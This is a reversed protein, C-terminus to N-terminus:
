KYRNYKVFTAKWDATLKDLAEKASGQNNVVYPYLDQNLQDLLEAYEPTAWFDKVIQMSDNFARNYPTANLFKDSTLVAQSCTYGGYEAWKQQVDDRIFWELFKMADDKHKSYSVISVGQGGLAAAKVGTPGPPNAFYGTVDAYPNTAKNALAPMFAFFNMAMASLGSTFAQNDEVFFSDGWNPPTFKTLDHYMEIAKINSDSNVIGDVAYTSYDGLSGGYSFITQEVGMAMADYKNQTYIALGYRKQDPRTFFEAIDHLQKYDKPVGLDYGYKAKFAEKEKPDEFWDKRYAWGNADGELPIAWYKGSGPPYEAYGKVTAPTMVQDLKHQKFFDSLDVWHGQTSGAGLWQSDGVILDYSDGHANLETFAKTQFDSWPTTEVTVKIGTEATFDNVLQQLYNSPDWEAWLITLEKDQAFASTSGALAFAIGALTSAVTKRM